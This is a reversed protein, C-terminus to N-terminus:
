ALLELLDTELLEGHPSSSRGVVLRENGMRGLVLAQHAGQTAVEEGLDVVLCPEEPAELRPEELPAEPPLTVDDLIGAGMERTRDVAHVNIGMTLRDDDVVLVLARLAKDVLIADKIRLAVVRLLPERKGSAHLREYVALDHATAMRLELHDRGDIEARTAIM